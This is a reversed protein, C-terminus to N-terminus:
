WLGDQGINKANVARDVPQILGRFTPGIKVLIPGIDEAGPDRQIFLDAMRGAKDPKIKGFRGFLEPNVMVPRNLAGLPYEPTDQDLLEAVTGVIRQQREDRAIPYSRTVGGSAVEFMEDSITIEISESAKRPGGTKGSPMVREPDIRAFREIEAAHERAILFPQNARYPDGRFSRPATHDRGAIYGDTGVAAFMDSYALVGIANVQASAPVMALANGLVRSLDGAWVSLSIM